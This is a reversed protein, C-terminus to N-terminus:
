TSARTRRREAVTAFGFSVFGLLIYVSGLWWRYTESWLVADLPTLALLLTGVERALDEIRERSKDSTARSPM